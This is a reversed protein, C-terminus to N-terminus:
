MLAKFKDAISMGEYLKVKKPLEVKAEETSEEIQYVNDDGVAEAHGSITALKMIASKDGSFSIEDTGDGYPDKDVTVKVGLKKAEDKLYKYDDDTFAQM